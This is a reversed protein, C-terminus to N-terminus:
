VLCKYVVFLFWEGGPPSTDADIDQKFLYLIDSTAANIDQKFRLDNECRFDTM